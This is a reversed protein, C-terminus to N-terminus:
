HGRILAGEATEEAFIRGRSGDSPQEAVPTTTGGAMRSIATLRMSEEMDILLKILEAVAVSLLVAFFTAALWMFFGLVHGVTGGTGMQVMYPGSAGILTSIAQFVGYILTLVAGVLWLIAVTRLVPYRGGSRIHTHQM